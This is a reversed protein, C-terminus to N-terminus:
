ISEKRQMKYEGKVGILSSLRYAAHRAIPVQWHVKQSARDRKVSQWIGASWVIVKLPGLLLLQQRNLEACKRLLLISTCSPHQPRQGRFLVLPLDRHPADSLHRCDRALDAPLLEIALTHADRPCDAAVGLSLRESERKFVGAGQGVSTVKKEGEALQTMGGLLAVGRVVGRDAALSWAIPRLSCCLRVRFAM